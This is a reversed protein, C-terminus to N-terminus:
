SGAVLGRHTYICLWKEDEFEKEEEWVDDVVCM